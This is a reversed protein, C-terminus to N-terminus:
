EATSVLLMPSAIPVRRRVVTRNADHMAARIFAEVVWEILQAGLQKTAIAGILKLVLAAYRIAGKSITDVEDDLRLLHRPQGSAPGSANTPLVEAGLIRPGGVTLDFGERCEIVVSATLPNAHVGLVDPHESLVRKLTEFYNEQRQRGPIKIRIRTPTRHVVFALSKAHM